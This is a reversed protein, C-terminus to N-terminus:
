RYSDSEGIYRGGRGFVPDGTLEAPQINLRAIVAKADKAWAALEQSVPKEFPVALRIALNTKLAEEYGDDDGLTYDAALTIAELATKHSLALTYDSSNPIDFVYIRGLAVSPTYYIAFPLGSQTKPSLERYRQETLRELETENGDSDVRAAYDIFRPRTVAIDGGTGITYSATGSALAKTTRTVTPIVLRQARWAKIMANATRLGLDSDEASPTGGAGIVGLLELAGSILDQGTM